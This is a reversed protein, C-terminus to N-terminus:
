IKNIQLLTKIEDTLEVEIAKDSNLEDVLDIKNALTQSGIYESFNEVAEIIERHKMIRIHIKDTVELGSDKRLNQIRNIFERAIGENRLESTVTVDLAVTIKGENAVLWGPIDESVIEVDDCTLVINQDDIEFSYEGESEIKAIVDQSFNAIASSIQKMLKGYRPGLTKFNPKIKKVLVGSTDKLFDIEKVNVESLILPAVKQLQDEFKRDSVPVMIKSLPQRVKINIKRRLGLIMSSITQAINMRLELDRDIYQPNYKPFDILHVSDATYKGTVANLDCFIKDCYFPAIPSALIAVTELCAYLSQYASLKDDDFEGGWYRKRNLRVYWNSLNEMVFEQIARSVKTLEYNEYHQEVEKILTNLLSFIWRDIEPRKELPIEAASNDFGDVNAYLAFFSYTNYLTGFFKRRVEEVGDIDFKLNDWPQANTVMYWRLPDSGYKEITEFPDIVNGLRKSMKNGTKDLVLGNSIINKYAVSDFLIGAIAHLTFFWGRTQDVGEAIFDAPFLDKFEKEKTAFPYHVQAYPMAGSDFWVDILDPERLMKQGKKSVLVIEDVFPRHLDFLSYNDDSYDNEKYSALPNSKMFGAEVAKDIKEKLKAVSGICIEETEDISAFTYGLRDEIKGASYSQKAHATRATQRTVRPPIKTILSKLFEGRWVLETIFPSAYMSPAKVRLADAVKKFVEEYTLNAANVIFRENLIDSDMLQIMIKVVDRVDVFGTSGRTYFKLGKHCISFVRPSGTNWKGPGLIVSPNVVVASLGETIGRWVEMEGMTKTRTYWSKPKIPYGDQEVAMNGDISSRVAAISSVHILKWVNTEICLNVIHKTGQVNVEHMRRKMGPNFSVLAACHYVKEVGAFAEKLSARDMMDGSIWEVRGLLKHPDKVYHKWVSLVKEPKGKESILARLPTESNLLELLLHGGLFGTGGTVLVM